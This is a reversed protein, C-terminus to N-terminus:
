LLRPLLNNGHLSGLFLATQIGLTLATFGGLRATPVDPAPFSAKNHLAVIRQKKKKVIVDCAM